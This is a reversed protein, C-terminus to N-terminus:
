WPSAARAIVSAIAHSRPRARIALVGPCVSAAAIEMVRVPCRTAASPRV